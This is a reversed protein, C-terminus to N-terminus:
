SIHMTPTEQTWSAGLTSTIKSSTTLTSVFTTLTSGASSLSSVDGLLRPLHPFLRTLVSSAMPNIYVCVAKCASDFTSRSRAGQLVAISRASTYFSCCNGAELLAPWKVSEALELCSRMSFFPRKMMGAIALRRAGSWSGSGTVNPSM